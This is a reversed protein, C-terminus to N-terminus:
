ALTTGRAGRSRSFLLDGAPHHHWGAPVTETLAILGGRRSGKDSSELTPQEKAQLMQREKGRGIEIKLRRSDASKPLEMTLVGNEYHASVQEVDVTQPLTITREFRGYRREVTHSGKKDGCEREAKRPEPTSDFLAPTAFRPPPRWARDANPAM